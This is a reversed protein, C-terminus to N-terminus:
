ANTGKGLIQELVSRLKALPDDVLRQCRWAVFHDPRVLVVGTESVERVRHWDQYCDMYNCRFGITYGKVQVGKDASITDAAEVWGEGGIGTFLTFRGQGSLDLTSVRPSLADAALWVHPLHYGPYTSVMVQRLPKIHSFDPGDDGAEVAVAASGLYVQNMQIGLAQVEDEIAELAQRLRERMEEGEPTASRLLGIARERSQPELGLIAWLDRHAEMGDNARRVVGDGVPKREPTLTGLLIPAAWGKIVYALKWSLNFADSLCTNSGLGNIPPHRHTADGICFVRGKQWTEAVQDNISWSFYSLIEVEVTDDGIMEHLRRLLSERTPKFDNPDKTAPHMSVVFENWPKVMRFNGVSSWEPAETNLVWNLSGPRHTLYKSLDAKIHVNFATNVQRGVVAIGLAELVPSRAGDAGVLYQSLVLYEQGSARDRLVTEVGNPTEKLRVFETYFKFDAGRKTAQEVLIPEMVNQPIDSMECPSSAIYDGKQDPKNGFAWLRGFEEGNLKNLWSAHELKTAPTAVQKMIEELGADRLVEMARQNVIHARPTNATERHKSVVLCKIGLTALHLATAAGAPGAGIILVPIEM